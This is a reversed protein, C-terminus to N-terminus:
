QDGQQKDKKLKRYQRQYEKQYEKRTKEENVVTAIKDKNDDRHKKKCIKCKSDIGYKGLKKKSFEIFEKELECEICVKTKIEQDNKM